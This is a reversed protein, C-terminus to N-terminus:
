PILEISKVKLKGGNVTNDAEFDNVQIDDGAGGNLVAGKALTNGVFTFADGGDGGSLKPKKAHEADRVSISDNGDGANIKLAGGFVAADTGGTIVDDGGGSSISLTKGSSTGGFLVPDNSAGTKLKGGKQLDSDFLGLALTDSSGTIKVKKLCILNDLNTSDDGGAGFTVKLAGQFTAGESNVTDIGTGLDFKVTKGFNVGDFTIVDDGAGAKVTTKSGVASDRIDLRDDGDDADFVLKGDIASDLFVIHDRGAGGEVTVDNFRIGTASLDNTGSGFTVQLKNGEVGGAMSIFDNGGDLRIDVTGAPVDFVVPQMAGNLTTNNAPIITFQFLEDSIFTIHNDSGDGRIILDEGQIAATVAGDAFASGAAAFVLLAAAYHTTAM